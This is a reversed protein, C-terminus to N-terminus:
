PRKTKEIAAAAALRADRREKAKRMANLVRDQGERGLYATERLFRLQVTRRYADPEDM